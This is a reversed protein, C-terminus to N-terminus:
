LQDFKAMSLQSQISRTTNKRISITKTQKSFSFSFNPNLSKKLLEGAQIIGKKLEVKPQDKFIDEQYIFNYDTQEKILTFIEDISFENNELIEIKSNQSFVNGTNFSFVTSCFLLIFTRMLLLLLAKSRFLLTSELNIQM